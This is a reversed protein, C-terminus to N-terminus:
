GHYCLRFSQMDKTYRLCLARFKHTMVPHLLGNNQLSGDDAIIQQFAEM